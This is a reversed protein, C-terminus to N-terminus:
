QCVALRGQQGLRGARDVAVRSRHHSRHHPTDHPREHTDDAPDGVAGHGAEDDTPGCATASLLAAATLGLAGLRWTRHTRLTKRSVTSM